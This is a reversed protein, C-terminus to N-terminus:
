EDDKLKHFRDIVTHGTVWVIALMFMGFGALLPMFGPAHAVDSMTNM